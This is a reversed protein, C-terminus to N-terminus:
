NLRWWGANAYFRGRPMVGGALNNKVVDHVKKVSGCREGQWSASRVKSGDFDLRNPRIVEFISPAFEIGTMGKVATM